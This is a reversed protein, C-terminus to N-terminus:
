PRDFICVLVGVLEVLTLVLVCLALAKEDSKLLLKRRPAPSPDRESSTFREDPEIERRDIEGGEGM